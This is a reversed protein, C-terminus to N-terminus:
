EPHWDGRCGCDCGDIIGRKKLARLKALVVKSPFNPMQEQIDWTFTLETHYTVGGLDRVMTGRSIIELITDEPVHKAQLHPPIFTQTATDMM